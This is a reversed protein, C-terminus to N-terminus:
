QSEPLTMQRASAHQPTLQVDVKGRRCDAARHAHVHTDELLHSDGGRMISGTVSHSSSGRSSVASLSPSSLTSPRRATAEFAVKSHVTGRSPSRCSRQTYLGTAPSLGRQSKGSSDRPRRSSADYESESASPQCSTGGVTHRSSPGAPGPM